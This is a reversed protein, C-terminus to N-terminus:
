IEESYYTNKGCAVWIGNGYRAGGPFSGEKMNSQTWTKGDESYYIGNGTNGSYDGNCAVWIGNAYRAGGGYFSGEKINSQTWTKGDESYYIGYSGSPCAVWIGNAYRAGGYFSNNTSKTWIAFIKAFINTPTKNKVILVNKGNFVVNKTKTGNVLISM